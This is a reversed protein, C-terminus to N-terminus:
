LKKRWYITEKYEMWPHKPEYMLFGSKILNNGSYVTNTTETVVYRFNLQRAKKLRIRIFRRQLGRGRHAPDVAARKFYATAGFDSPTMGCFGVPEKGKYAVWWWGRALTEDDLAPFNETQKNFFRIAELAEDDEFPDVQRIRYM